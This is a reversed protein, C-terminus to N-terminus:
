CRRLVLQQNERIFDAAERINRFYPVNDIRKKKPVAIGLCRWHTLQHRRRFNLFDQLVEASDDIHILPVDRGILERLVSAKGKHGDPHRSIVVCNFQPQRLCHSTVNRVTSEHHCYSVVLQSFQGERYIQEVVRQAEVPLQGNWCRSASSSSFRFCDLVQHFDWSIVSTGFLSAQGQHVACELRSQINYPIAKIIPEANDAPTSIVSSSSGTAKAKPTYRVRSPTINAVPKPKAKASSSSSAVEQSWNERHFSGLVIPDEEEEGESFHVVTELDSDSEVEVVRSSHQRVGESRTWERLGPLVINRDEVWNNQLHRVRQDIQEIRINYVQVRPGSVLVAILRLIREKLM